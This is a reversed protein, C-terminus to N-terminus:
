SLIEFAHHDIYKNVYFRKFRKYDTLISEHNYGKPIAGGDSFVPILHVARLIDHLAIVRARPQNGQMARKVIAMGTIETRTCDIVAEFDHVLACSHAKQQYFFIFFLRVQSISLSNIAKENPMDNNQKLLVTDYRAHGGRWQSVARIREKRMGGMGSLDSPAYFTVVASNYTTLPYENSFSQQALDVDLCQDEVHDQHLYKRILHILNSQKVTKAM